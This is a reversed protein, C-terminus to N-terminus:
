PNHSGYEASNRSGGPNTTGTSNPFLRDGQTSDKEGSGAPHATAASNNYERRPGDVPGIDEAIADEYSPPADMSQSPDLTPGGFSGQAPPISSYSPATPTVPYAANAPPAQNYVPKSAAAAMNELLQRPPPIGSYVEVALRLPLM